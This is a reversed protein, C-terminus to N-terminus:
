RRSGTHLVFLAYAGAARTALRDWSPWVHLLLGSVLMLASIAILAPVQRDIRAWFLAGFFFSHFGFPVGLLVLDLPHDHRTRLAAGLTLLASGGLLMGIILWAATGQSVLAFYPQLLAILGIAALPVAVSAVVIDGLFVGRGAHSWLQGLRLLLSFGLVVVFWAYFNGLPVGFWPGVSGWTWFGLRIAIADMSLDITLALLADMIPRLYWPLGFRDSTAMATYIVVGWSIGICLPVLGDIMILFHGYVYAHFTSIAAYEILVGYLMGAGLSFVQAWGRAWAHCLCTVALVYVGFEFVLFVPEPM